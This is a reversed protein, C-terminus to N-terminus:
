NKNPLQGFHNAMSMKKTLLVLTQAKLWVDKGLIFVITWSKDLDWVLFECLM